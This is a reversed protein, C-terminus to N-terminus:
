VPKINAFKIVKAWKETEDAAFKGFQSASMPMPETGFGALRASLDTHALAAVMERNLKHLIDPPTGKPAYVGWWNSAEYGPLVDAVPPVDPLAKSRTTTTVALARLKGGRIYELSAPIPDFLVQVQGGLLDTLAPAGGRYPVHVLNVGAMMKFLEGAVHGPTGIGPSAMSLKGPNSKSYDIFESTTKVPLSPNIELVLPARGIGGVPTLDRIFDFKLNKYLSEGIANSATVQLLTYGDPNARVVEEAAINGGAGPHNEVVVQRGIQETLSQAMLRAVIDGPGGPPFGVVLRVPRAPYTQARASRLLAPLAATGAALCFLKRRSITM